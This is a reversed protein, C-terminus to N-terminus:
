GYIRARHAAFQRRGTVLWLLRAPAPVNARLWGSREDAPVVELIWGLQLLLRERPISAMGRAHLAGWEKQSMVTAATPLIASEEQGLHALLTDRVAELTLAVPEGDSSRASASWTPLVEGLAELQAATQAHQARMLGVHLACAPARQELVDWLLEDEGTHHHHLADAVEQVHDGVARARATDGDAVGRVLAPGDTFARRFLAHITLMDSTDCGPKEDLATM